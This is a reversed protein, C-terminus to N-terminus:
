IEEGLIRGIHNMWDSVHIATGHIPLPSIANWAAGTRSILVLQKTGTESLGSKKLQADLDRLRDNAVQAQDVLTKLKKIEQQYAALLRQGAQARAQREADRVAVSVTQEALLLAREERELSQMQERADAVTHALTDYQESRRHGSLIQEAMLEDLKQDGDELVQRLSILKARTEALAEQILRRKDKVTLVHKDKQWEAVRSESEVSSLM